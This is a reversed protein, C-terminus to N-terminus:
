YGPPTGNYEATAKLLTSMKGPEDKRVEGLSGLKAVLDAYTAEFQHYPVEWQLGIFGGNTVANNPALWHMALPDTVFLDGSFVGMRACENGPMIQNYTHDAQLALTIFALGEFDPDVHPWADRCYIWCTASNLPEPLVDIGDRCIEIEHDYCGKRVVEPVPLSRLGEWTLKAARM